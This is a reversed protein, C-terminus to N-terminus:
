HRTESRRDRAFVFDSWELKHVLVKNRLNRYRKLIGGAGFKETYTGIQFQDSEVPKFSFEQSNGLRASMSIDTKLLQLITWGPPPASSPGSLIMGDARTPVAPLDPLARCITGFCGYVSTNGYKPYLVAKRIHPEKAPENALRHWEALKSVEISKSIRGEVALGARVAKGVAWKSRWEMV